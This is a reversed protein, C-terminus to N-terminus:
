ILACDRPKGEFQGSEPMEIHGSCFIDSRDVVIIATFDKQHIISHSLHLGEEDWDYRWTSVYPSARTNVARIRQPAMGASHKVNNRFARLFSVHTYRSSLLGERVESKIILEGV